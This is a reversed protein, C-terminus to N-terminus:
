RSSISITRIKSSSSPLNRNRNQFPQKFNTVGKGQRRYLGGEIQMALTSRSWGNQIATRIYWLREEAADTKELIICNHFWPLKAALQQLIIEDPWAEAFAKMYGLNRPSFGKMEPFERSLDNSLRPIVNRGWGEANQRELIQRGINWYLVVLESNVALAAKVQAARIQEKLRKLLDAYSKSNPILDAM